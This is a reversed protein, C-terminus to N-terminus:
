CCRSVLRQVTSRSVGLEGAISRISGGGKHLEVARQYDFGVRPRGFQVGQAKAKAVGARVREIIIDREFEAVASIVSFLMKGAATSTDMAEHLSVFDISLSQFESLANLLHATSRGFRDFRWVLVVDFKGQRSEKVLEDLAPRSDKSGSIGKDEYVKYIDWGRRKCFSILDDKQLQTDQKDTSCRVYVAARKPKM